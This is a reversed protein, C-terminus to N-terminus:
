NNFSANTDYLIKKKKEWDLGNEQFNYSLPISIFIQMCLYISSWSLGDSYM